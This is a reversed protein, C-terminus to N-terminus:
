AEWRKLCVRHLTNEEGDLWKITLKDTGTRTTMIDIIMGFDGGSNLQALDGIVLPPNAPLETSV